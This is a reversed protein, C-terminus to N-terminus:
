MGGTAPAKRWSPMSTATIRLARRARVSHGFGFQMLKEAWCASFNICNPVIRAAGPSQLHPNM